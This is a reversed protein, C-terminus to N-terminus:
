SFSSYVTRYHGRHVGDPNLLPIMKFVYQKRLQKARPDKPRLIFDLFGNFVFSSPTEGPHVRSSVFYVRKNEFQHARPTKLDPFLKDLRPERQKTIGHCSSITILDVRLGDLSNCLLERHYYISESPSSPGLEQCTTFQQDLEELKNQCETYSFPYCFAFYVTSYRYEFRYTFSMIFQGDITECVPRDRIREWRPKQPLVKVVPAMGQNYLKGQRNMNMINFKMLKNQPCGKVAFHFWSRNGNQFETGDCDPRTWLNFEYDPLSAIDGIRHSSPDGEDDNHIREVRALNGSDFKSTFLIGSIRAEM